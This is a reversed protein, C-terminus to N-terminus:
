IHNGFQHFEEKKIIGDYMETESEISRYSSDIITLGAENRSVVM